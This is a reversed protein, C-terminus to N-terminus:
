RMHVNFEGRQRFKLPCEPCAFKKVDSHKYLQHGRLHETRKFRAGCGEEECVYPRDDGDGHSKEVHAQLKEATKFRLKCMECVFNCSHIKVHKSYDGANDFVM